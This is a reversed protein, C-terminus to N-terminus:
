SPPPAAGALWGFLQLTAAQTYLAGYPGAYGGDWRKSWNGQDDRANAAARKANAYLVAYWRPNHDVSYLRLLGHLFVVDTEPAWDALVPFEKLSGEALAEAKQCWSRDNTAACLEAEAAMMMGQVYDMITGDTANRGYLGSRDAQVTNADAWAIYRKATDLFYKKHQFRYLTAAIMAGAALPESTKHHHYLDWWVGGGGTWDWGFKDIFSLARGADWLWRVNKTARYAEVYAIGLWGNDDFYADGSDYAGYYWGFGAVGTALRRDWYNEVGEAITNVTQKNAATPYAIAVSATLEFFGSISYASALPQPHGLQSSYWAKQDNWWLKRTRALGQDALQGFMSRESKLLAANPLTLPDAGRAAPAAAALALGVLAASTLSRLRV